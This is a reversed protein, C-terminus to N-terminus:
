AEGDAGAARQREWAAMMDLVSAVTTEFVLRNNAETFSRTAM